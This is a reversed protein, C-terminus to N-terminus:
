HTKIEIGLRDAHIEEDQKAPGGTRCHPPATNAWARLYAEQKRDQHFNCGDDLNIYCVSLAALPTLDSSSVPLWNMQPTNNIAVDTM